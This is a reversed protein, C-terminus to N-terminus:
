IGHFEGQSQLSVACLPYGSPISCISLFCFAAAPHRQRHSTGTNYGPPGLIALAPRPIRGTKVYPRKIGGARDSSVPCGGRPGRGAGWAGSRRRAAGSPMAAANRRKPPNGPAKASIRQARGGGAPPGPPASIYVKQTPYQMKCRAHYLTLLRLSLTSIRCIPKPKRKAFLRRTPVDSPKRGNQRGAAAPPSATRRWPQWPIM